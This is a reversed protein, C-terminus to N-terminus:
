VGANELCKRVMEFTELKCLNTPTCRVVRWGLMAANNYKEMDKMFGAGRTHRGGTFVAGEVELAVKQKIWCFDFRWRREGHFKYELVPIPVGFTPCAQIFINSIM